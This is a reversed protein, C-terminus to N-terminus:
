RYFVMSRSLYGQGVLKSREKSEQGSLPLRHSQRIFETYKVLAEQLKKVQLAKTGLDKLGLCVEKTVGTVPCCKRSLANEWDVVSNATSSISELHQWSM